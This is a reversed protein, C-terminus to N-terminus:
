MFFNFTVFRFCRLLLILHFVGLLYSMNLKFGKISRHESSHWTIRTQKPRANFAASEKFDRVVWNKDLQFYGRKSGAVYIQKSNQNSWQITQSRQSQGSHNSQNQNKSVWNFVAKDLLAYLWMVMKAKLKENLKNFKCEEARLAERYGRMEYEMNKIKNRLNRNEVILLVNRHKTQQLLSDAFFFISDTKFFTLFVLDLWM